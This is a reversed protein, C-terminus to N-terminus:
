LKWSKIYNSPKGLNNAIQVMREFEVVDKIGEIHLGLATVRPDKLFEAAM